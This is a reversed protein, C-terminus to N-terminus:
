IDSKLSTVGSGSVVEISVGLTSCTSTISLKGLFKSPESFTEALSSQYLSDSECSLSSDKTIVSSTTAGVSSSLEESTTAKFETSSKTHSTPVM